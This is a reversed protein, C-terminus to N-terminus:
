WKSEEVQSAAWGNCIRHVCLYAGVAGFMAGMLVLGIADVWNVFGIVRSLNLFGLETKIMDAQWIYLLYCVGISMLSALAGMLLGEIVYPLRIMEPTAGVLEMIEIEDRRQAIANRISNGIVFLSGCLLVFILFWSSAQFSRVVATYNEVWGQGYYVDEVTPQGSIKRALDILLGYRKESPIGDRLSAEFSAPLPNGFEPDSLFDPSYSGMQQDFRQAAEEKTLFEIKKFQGLGELFRHTTKVEEDKVQEKLFVSLRASEGWSALVRDMNRHVLWFLTIVVFTGCLVSLTAVQMGTQQQWSRWFGKLWRNNM